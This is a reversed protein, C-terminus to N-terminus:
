IFFEQKDEEACDETIESDRSQSKDRNWKTSAQLPCVGASLSAPKNSPKLSSTSFQPPESLPQSVRSRPTIQTQPLLYASVVSLDVSRSIVAQGTDVDTERAGVLTDVNIRFRPITFSFSSASRATSPYTSAPHFEETAMSILSHTHVDTWGACMIDQSCPVSRIDDQKCQLPLSTHSSQMLLNQTHPHSASQCVCQGYADPGYGNSPTKSFPCSLITDRSQASSGQVQLLIKNGDYDRTQWRIHSIKSFTCPHPLLPILGGVNRVRIEMLTCETPTPDQGRPCRKFSLQIEMHHNSYVVCFSYIRNRQALPRHLLLRYLRVQDGYTEYRCYITFRVIEKGYRVKRLAWLPTGPVLIFFDQVASSFTLGKVQETHHYRWPPRRLQQEHNKEGGYDEHLFLIVSLCPRPSPHLDTVCRTRPQPREARESVRFLTLQPHILSLLQDAACQLTKAEGPDTIIHVSVLFPDQLLDAMSLDWPCISFPFLTPNLRFCPSCFLM